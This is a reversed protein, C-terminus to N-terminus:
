RKEKSFQNVPLKLLPGAKEVAERRNAVSLKRYVRQCIAKVNRVAKEDDHDVPPLGPGFEPRDLKDAIEKNLLGEEILRLVEFELSTLGFPPRPPQTYARFFKLVLRAIEPSMVSRGESLEIVEEPLREIGRKKLLYGTAGNQLAQFVVAPDDDVTLFLVETDPISSRLQLLLDLGSGDKLQQDLVLVRPQLAKIPELAEKMGYFVGVVALGARSSLLRSLESALRVDDEVLAM